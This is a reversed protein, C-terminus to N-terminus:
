VKVSKGKIDKIKLSLSYGYSYTCFNKSFSSMVKLLDSFSKKKRRESLAAEGMMQCGM